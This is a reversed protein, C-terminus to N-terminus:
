LRTQNSRYRDRSFELGSIPMIGPREAHDLCSWDRRSSCVRSYYYPSCASGATLAHPLAHHQDHRGM